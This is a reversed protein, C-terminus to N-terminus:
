EDKRGGKLANRNSTRYLFYNYAKPATYSREIEEGKGKGKEKIRRGVLAQPGALSVMERGIGRTIKKAQDWWEDMRSDLDDEEPDISELWQRFPNDLSFYVMEKAKDLETEWIKNGTGGSKGSAKALDVALLGAQFALRDTTAIEEVIRNTWSESAKGLLKSNFTISDSFIHDFVMDKDGYKVSTTQFRFHLRSILQRESLYDLWAVIGPIHANGSQAVLSSFDRWLQRSPDHRKPFFENASGTKQAAIQWVTMQEIYANGTVFFDGGLLRYGTVSGNERKLRLRRSQITYLESLNDPVNIETREDTKLEKEWSPKEPPWISKDRHNIFVLNLLLTQFLNDGVATILGIKGLWGAGPSPLGKVSSKSSTDDFANIHILWRAAEPYSLGSKSSGTRHSFLRIKNSSESLEGILKATPYETSRGIDVVQYFPKDPHFLWFRDQHQRLYNNILDGPFTGEDWLIKWHRLADRENRTKEESGDPHYRSFVTHLVALLLRLIAIDQTPLEGALREFEHARRFVDLLSLEERSGDSKMALIWPEDLLNFEAKDM